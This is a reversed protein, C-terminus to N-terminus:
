GESASTPPLKVLVAISVLLFWGGTLPGGDILGAERPPVPFTALNLVLTAVGIVVGAVGLIRWIGSRFLLVTAFLATALLVFVDWAVDLGLQVTAVGGLIAQWVSEASPTAAAAIHRNLLLMGSSQVLTMATFCVGAAVGWMRAFGLIVNVGSTGQRLAAELGVFGCMVLPGFLVHALFDALEPLPLVSWSLFSLAAVLGLSTGVRALLQREAAMSPVISQADVPLTLPGFTPM